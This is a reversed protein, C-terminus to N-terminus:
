RALLRYLEDLSACADDDASASLLVEFFEDLSVAGFAIDVGCDEVNGVVLGDWSKRGVDELFVGIDVAHPHVRTQL